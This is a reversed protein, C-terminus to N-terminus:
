QQRHSKSDDLAGCRRAVRTPENSRFSIPMRYQQQFLKVPKLKTAHWTNTRQNRWSTPKDKEAENNNPQSATPAPETYFVPLCLPSPARRIHHNTYRPRRLIEWSAEQCQMKPKHVQLLKQKWCFFCFSQHNTM